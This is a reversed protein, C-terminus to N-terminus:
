EVSFRHVVYRILWLLYVAQILFLLLGFFSFMFAIQFLVKAKILRHKNVADRAHIALVVAPMTCLWCGFTAVSCLTFLYKRSHLLTKESEFLFIGGKHTEEGFTILTTDTPLPQIPSILPMSVSCDTQSISLTIPVNDIM